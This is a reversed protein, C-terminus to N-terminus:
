IGVPETNTGCVPGTTNNGLTPITPATSGAINAECLSSFSTVDSTSTVTNLQVRGVYGRLAVNQAIATNIAFNNTANINDYTSASTSYAYNTTTQKVGVNLFDFAGFRGKETYYAQQGKNLAGTYTKAESQKAKNSQSLFSPLAIAALIGIIIIVVLLEILTFGKDDKKNNLIQQLLKTKFETKM